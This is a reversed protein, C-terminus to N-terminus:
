FESKGIAIRQQKSGNDVFISVHIRLGLTNLVVAERGLYGFVLSWVSVESNSSETYAQM